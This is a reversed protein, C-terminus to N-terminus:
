DDLYEIVPRHSIKVCKDLIPYFDEMSYNNKKSLIDLFDELFLQLFTSFAKDLKPTINFVPYNEPVATDLIFARLISHADSIDGDNINKFLTRKLDAVKLKKGGKLTKRNAYDLYGAVEQKWHNQSDNDPYVFFKVLHELLVPNRNLLDQMLESRSTAMGVIIEHSAYINRKIYLKM